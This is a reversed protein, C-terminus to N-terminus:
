KKAPRFITLKQNEPIVTWVVIGNQKFDSIWQTGDYMAIHGYQHIKSKDWVCIDGKEYPTRQNNNMTWNAKNGVFSNALNILVFDSDNSLYFFYKWADGFFTKGGALLAARVYAACRGLSKPQANTQLKLVAKDIDLMVGMFNLTRDIRFNWWARSYKQLRVTRAYGLIHFRQKRKQKNNQAFFLHSVICNYPNFGM